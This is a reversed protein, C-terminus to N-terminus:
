MSGSCLSSGALDCARNDSDIHSDTRWPHVFMGCVTRAYSAGLLSAFCMIAGLWMAPRRQRPYRRLFADWVPGKLALDTQLSPCCRCSKSSCYIIGSSLTGVLPLISHADPQSRFRPDNLYASLYVGYTNPFAWVVTQVIFAAALQCTCSQSDRFMLRERLRDRVFSWAGFGGDVPQLALGHGEHNHSATHTSDGRAVASSSPPLPLRMALEIDDLTSLSGLSSRATNPTHDGHRSNSMDEM